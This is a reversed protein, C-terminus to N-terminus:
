QRRSKDTAWIEAKGVSNFDQLNENYTIVMVSQLRNLIDSLLEYSEILTKNSDYLMFGGITDIEVYRYLCNSYNGVCLKMDDIDRMVSEADIGAKKLSRRCDWIHRILRTQFNIIYKEIEMDSKDGCSTEIKDHIEKIKSDILGIEYEDVSDQLTTVDNAKLSKYIVILMIVGTVGVIVSLVPFHESEGGVFDCCASATLSLIVSELSNVMKDWSRNRSKLYNKRKQLKAVDLDEIVTKMWDSYNYFCYIFRKQREIHNNSEGYHWRHEDIEPIEGEQLEQESQRSFGIITTIMYIFEVIIVVVLLGLGILTIVPKFDGVVLIGGAVLIIIFIIRQLIKKNM